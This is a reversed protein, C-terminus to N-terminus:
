TRRPRTGGLGGEAGRHGERRHGRHAAPGGRHPGRPRGGDRHGGRQVQQGLAAVRGPRRLHVPARRRRVAAARPARAFARQLLQRLELGHQPLGRRRAVLGAAPAAAGRDRAAGRARLRAAHEGQVGALRAARTPSGWKATARCARARRSPSASSSTRRSAPWTTSRARSPPTPSCRAHDGPLLRGVPLSDTALSAKTIGLLLPQGVPPEKGEAILANASEEFEFRNVQRGPLYTPTAPTWRRGGQAADPARHGRHAQRQHGRGPSVYVGQVQGVIYRLTTNPDTLRLLDHPNVSGKTLQQGM